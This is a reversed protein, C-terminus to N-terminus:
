LHDLFSVGQQLEARARFWFSTAAMCLNRAFAFFWGTVFGVWFGWGLGIFAGGLSVRYGPLYQSLLVIPYPDDPGMRILHILTAAFLIVGLVAGVAMGLCRKHLPTFTLDLEQTVVDPVEDARASHSTMEANM